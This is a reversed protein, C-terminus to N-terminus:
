WAKGVSNDFSKGSQNDPSWYGELKGNISNNLRIYVWEIGRLEEAKDKALQIAEGCDSLTGHETIFGGDVPKSIITRKM